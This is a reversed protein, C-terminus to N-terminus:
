ASRRSVYSPVGCECADIMARTTFSRLIGDIWTPIGDPVRGSVLWMCNLAGASSGYAADFAHQLGLEHLGLAMGGSIAGRM